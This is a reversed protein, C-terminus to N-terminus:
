FWFCSRPRLESGLPHEIGDRAVLIRRNLSLLLWLSRGRYHATNKIMEPNGVWGGAVEWSARKQIVEPKGVIRFTHERM